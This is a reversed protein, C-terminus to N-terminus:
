FPYIDKEALWEVVEDQGEHKAATAANEDPLLDYNDAYYQLLELDGNGAIIALSDSDPLIDRIALWVLLDMFDYQIALDIVVSTPVVDNEIMWQLVEPHDYQAVVDAYDGINEYGYDKLLRLVRLNGLRCAANAHYNPNAVIQNIINFYYQRWSVDARKNKLVQSNFYYRIRDLWLDDNNCLNSAYKNVQCLALLDKDNFNNLIIIDVDSIYTFLEM